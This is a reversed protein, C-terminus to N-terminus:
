KWEKRETGAAHYLLGLAYFVVLVFILLRMNTFSLLLAGAFAGAAMGIDRWTANDSAEKIISSGGHQIAGGTAVAANMSSFTFAIISGAITAGSLICLLGAASLVTTYIFMKNFGRRDALWGSLPSFLVFSLRRYGLLLGVTALTEAPDATQDIQTLRGLLVVLVGETIFANILVLVNFSSPFSLGLEKKSVTETKLDSLPLVLLIGAFGILGFVLFATGSGAYQLLFPGAILALVPGLEILGRSLGLATGKRRHELAYLINGLRLSSFSFGWLVRALIWLPVASISGYLVTTFSAFLIAVVVVTKIGRRSVIWAVRGNLFFRTIRNVSLIVGVWFSSLGIQQHHAPLYAYLFADGM